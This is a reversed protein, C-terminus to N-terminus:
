RGVTNTYWTPVNSANYIVLNGDDQMVLRSSGRGWTSSYWFPKKNEDYLVLNGDTQMSVFKVPKAWTYTNWVATSQSYLVLNGDTQMKLRYKKNPSILEQGRFLNGTRLTSYISSQATTPIWTGSNWIPLSNDSYVVLNSDQQLKLSSGPNGQTVSNWIANGYPNYLVLNGDSQMELYSAVNLWTNSSWVASGSRYLVLNGDEQLTLINNGGESVLYEGVGLRQGSALTSGKSTIAVNNFVALTSGFWNNFDRWFNRNGYASCIDGTGYL